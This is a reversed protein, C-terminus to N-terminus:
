LESRHNEAAKERKAITSLPPLGRILLEDQGCIAFHDFAMEIGCFTPEQEFVPFFSGGYEVFNRRLEPSRGFHEHNAAVDVFACPARLVQLLNGGSCQGHVWFRLRKCVLGVITIAFHVRWHSANQV